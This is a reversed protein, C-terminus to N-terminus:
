MLLCHGFNLYKRAKGNTWTCPFNCHRDHAQLQDQTDTPRWRRLKTGDVFIIGFPLRNVLGKTERRKAATQWVIPCSFTFSDHLSFM